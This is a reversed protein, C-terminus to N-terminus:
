KVVSGLGLIVYHRNIFTLHTFRYNLPSFVFAEIVVQGMAVVDVVFNGV